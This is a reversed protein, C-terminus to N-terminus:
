CKMINGFLKLDKGFTEKMLGAFLVTIIMVFPRRSFPMVKLRANRLDFRRHPSLKRALLISTAIVSLLSTIKSAGEDKNKASKNKTL